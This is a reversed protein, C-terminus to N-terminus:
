VGTENICMYAIIINIKVNKYNYRMRDIVKHVENELYREGREEYIKVGEIFFDLENKHKRCRYSREIFYKFCQKKVLETMFLKRQHEMSNIYKEYDFEKGEFYNQYNGLLKIFMIYFAKKAELTIMTWYESENFETSQKRSFQLSNAHEITNELFRRVPESDKTPWEPVRESSTFKGKSIDFVAIEEPMEKKSRLKKIEHWLFRPIGIIYPMPADIYEAM